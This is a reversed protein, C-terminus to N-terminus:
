SFFWGHCGCSELPRNGTPQAPFLVSVVSARLDCLLIQLDDEDDERGPRGEGDDRGFLRSRSVVGAGRLGAGLTIRFGLVIQLIQRPRGGDLGRIEAASRGPRRLQLQLAPVTRRAGDPSVVTRLACGVSERGSAVLVVKVRYTGHIYFPVV